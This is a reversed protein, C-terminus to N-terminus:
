LMINESFRKASKPMMSQDPDDGALIDLSCAASEVHRWAL